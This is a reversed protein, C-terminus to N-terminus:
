FREKCGQSQGSEDGARGEDRRSIGRPPGDGFVVLRTCVAIGISGPSAVRIARAPGVFSAWHALPELRIAPSLVSLRRASGGIAGRVLTKILLREMGVRMLM